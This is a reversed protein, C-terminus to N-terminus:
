GHFTWLRMGGSTRFNSQEAVWGGALTPGPGLAVQGPAWLSDARPGPRSPGPGPALLGSAPPSYARGLFLVIGSPSGACRAGRDLAPISRGECDIVRDGLGSVRHYRAARRAEASEICRRIGPIPCKPHPRVAAGNGAPSPGDLTPDVGSQHNSRIPPTRIRARTPRNSLTPRPGPTSFSPRILGVTKRLMTWAM